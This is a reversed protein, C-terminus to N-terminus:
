SARVHIVQLTMLGSVDHLHLHCNVFRTDSTKEERKLLKAAVFVDPQLAFDKRKEKMEALVKAAREADKEIVKM